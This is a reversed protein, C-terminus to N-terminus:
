AESRLHASFENKGIALRAMVDCIHLRGKLTGASRGGNDVKMKVIQSLRESRPGGIGSNRQYCYGGHHPMGVDVCRHPISVRSILALSSRNLRNFLGSFAPGLDTGSLL